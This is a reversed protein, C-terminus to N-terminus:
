FVPFAAACNGKRADAAVPGISSGSAISMDVAGVGEAAEGLTEAKSM